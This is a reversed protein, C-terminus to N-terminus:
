KPGFQVIEVVLPHIAMFKIRVNCFGGSKLSARVRGRTSGCKHGIGLVGVVKELFKSLYM